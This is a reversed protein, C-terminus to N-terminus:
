VSVRVSENYISILSLDPREWVLTYPTPVTGQRKVYIARRGRKGVDGGNGWTLLSTHDYSM